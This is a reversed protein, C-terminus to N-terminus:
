VCTDFASRSAEDINKVVRYNVYEDNLEQKNKDIQKYQICRIFLSIVKLDEPCYRKVKRKKIKCNYM